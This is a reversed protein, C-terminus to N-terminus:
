LEAETSEDNSAIILTTVTGGQANNGILTYGGGGPTGVPTSPPNKIQMEFIANDRFEEQIASANTGSGEFSYSAQTYNQGANVFELILIEDNVEGAFAPGVVAQNLRNNITAFKPAETPDNGDSLAGYLGYSSNGNTARIVGGNVAYMGITAYYTFVSPCYNKNEAIMM